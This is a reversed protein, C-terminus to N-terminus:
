QWLWCPWFRWKFSGSLIDLWEAWVALLAQDVWHQLLCRYDTVRLLLVELRIHLHHLFSCCSVGEMIEAVRCTGKVEDGSKLQLLKYSPSNVLDGCHTLCCHWFRPLTPFLALFSPDTVKFLYKSSAASKKKVASVPYSHFNDIFQWPVYKNFVM